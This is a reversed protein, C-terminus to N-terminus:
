FPFEKSNDIRHELAKELPKEATKHVPNGDVYIAKFPKTPCAYECGGCGVCIDQTVKPILLDRDPLTLYHVMAVAKTPCHESCAGCNTNDTYVVCNERIFQAVGVQAQQKKERSFDQIAGTPCVELCATCDYNCHGSRFDMKPQLMGSLGYDLVAPVLIRSPCVSVCLHCATCLSSFRTVSGSGPPSIPGTRTEPITTPRSQIIQGASDASNVPNAPGADVRGSGLGMGAAALGLLFGRRGSVPQNSPVQRRWHNRLTIGQGPCAALCNFCAVCRRIDVTKKELDICGAKCVGQCRRCSGCADQAIRIRFMSARSFIGLLAGVPCLTNCYLRGHRASLWGVGMLTVLAIGASVPVFVPLRVRYLFHNGWQELVVAWLNNAVLVLPRFIASVMRGFSSFPDLLNLVFGSGALFLLVTLILIAYWLFNHPQSYSYRYRNQKKGPWAPWSIRKRALRSILDQFIGLPCVFSCYVRGFVLTLILVLIFGSAGIAATDLFQLLSPVFQLFLVEGALARYGSDRFDLFLFLTMVFFVLAFFIRLPRLHRM